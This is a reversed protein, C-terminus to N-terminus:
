LKATWLRYRGQGTVERILEAETLRDLNRQTAARSAGTEKEAMPASVLPWDALVAILRGPTRGSWDVAAEEARRRWAELRELVLLAVLCSAEAGALWRGLIATAEGGRRLAGTGALALPLFLAGGTRRKFARGSSKGVIGSRAESGPGAQTALRAAVVAAELDAAAGAGSIEGLQWLHFGLASASIPHLGEAEAMAEQWEALRGALDSPPEIFAHGFEAANPRDHRGLFVALDVEPGSGGALRRVAWAARSLAQADDQSSSLRLSVWMGLRDPAVRDGIHWSLEAAELLALRHQAGQGLGRLREDLAGFLAAVKALEAALDGQAARWAQPVIAQRRNARPLPPALPDRDLDDPPGPLFWLDEEPVPDADFPTRWSPDANGPGSSKSTM